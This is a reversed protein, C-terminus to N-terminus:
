RNIEENLEEMMRARCQEMTRALSDAEHATRAKLWLNTLEKMDRKYTGVIRHEMLPYSEYFAGIRDAFADPDRRRLAELGKRKENFEDYRDLLGRTQETDNKGKIREKALDRVRKRYKEAVSDRKEPSYMWGTLPANRHIKYEAYREVIEAPSMESAQAASLGIEEFYLKDMQSPPCSLLRAVLLACEKQTQADSNYDIIAATWDTLTQPNVGFAMGGLINLVDNAAALMDKDAKQAAQMIDSFMPNSRGLKYISKENAGTLMNLGDTIVDGYALGEIPAFMSQRTADEWQKRKEDDEGSLLLFPAVGGIRWLWPLIWGFMALNVTNKVYASRIERKANKRAKAWEADTWADEAEPHLTRLIQKAVYDENVEGSILRMLNRASTHAERTYSTSSNRFLMASTAYFTHDVQVPAMFPGESSQQSKNYCLEADQVARREAQSEEMGWRLYKAKRTKYVGHSGVAITWADVGINPLMGYSSAKMIKGDYENEKLRYDGSTRSLIRKRFNPMNKWAWKCAPVGMTAIDAGLYKLNIEGFFAPLSLTQKLATFPRLSIKGMTVGKAGQVMFRDFKARQPEYADTAIACCEEFRKWLKEGAGYVSNMRFVQQKLRNYSLLTGFDRNLEAFATWHCMEDVHKALIDMFNCKRMNWKAVSAVRKKIAGTQVSIRDNSQTTQGNEVERKLADKDRVFPFYNEISDMSAGFMRKHVENAEDGLQPLLEEQVWDAYERLKPDLADTIDQMAAEDIGMRRNTAQGMPMKEVAYLYLLEGQGIEYERMEAGDYYKITACPLADAYDYLDSYTYDVKRAGGNHWTRHKGFIEAAKEDMQKHVAEKMEQEKDASDIWGRMFHNQMYGEGNPNKSGMMKLMQDLTSMPELLWSVLWSNRLKMLRTDELDGRLERGQMDSNALHHIRNVREKEAERWAKAREVSELLEGGLQETLQEYAAIRDLKLQHIAARTAEEFQRFAASTMRGADKEEKAKKIEERLVKESQKSESINESYEKAIQLGAYELSARESIRSYPDSMADMASHMRSLICGPLLNGEADYTESPLNKWSNFVKLIAEGDPDLAGQVKIGRGDAQSTRMSILKGFAVETNRLHNNVMIEFVRGVQKSIDRRGVADTAQKLLAKVEANGIDDLLGNEMLVRALDKISKATTVDYERQRAMARRLHNLNGGIARMADKKAQLNDANAQMAEAKMKTITEELGMDPNRFFIKEDEGESKPYEFFKPLKADDSLSAGDTVSTLHESKLLSLVRQSVAKKTKYFTKATLNGKRDGYIELLNYTGGNTSSLFYFLNRKLGDPEVGYVIREPNCIIEGIMRIDEKNLPINNGKDKENDAFHDRYMHVLDSPNLVFSVNEKLKLGSLKELYMRGAETLRGVEVPKGKLDGSVAQNFLEEIRDAVAEKRVAEREEKMTQEAGREKGYRRAMREAERLPGEPAQERLKSEFLSGMAQYEKRGYKWPMRIKLGRLIAGMAKEMFDVVRKWFSLKDARMREYGNEEVEEQVRAGFEETADRMYEGAARRSRAEVHALAVAVPSGAYIREGPKSHGKLFKEDRSLEDKAREFMEAEIAEIERRVGESSNEYLHDMLRDREQETRCFLRIGKHWVGEHFVAKVVDRVTALNPLNITVGPRGALEEGRSYFGLAMRQRGSALRGVEEDTRNLRIPLGLRESLELAKQEKLAPDTERGTLEKEPAPDMFQTKGDGTTEQKKGLKNYEANLEKLKAVAEDLEAQKPFTGDGINMGSLQNRTAELERKYVDGSEIIRKLLNRFATGAATADDSLRVTYKIDHEGTGIQLERHSSFLGGSGEENVTVVQARQGFGQLTLNKGEDLMKLLYEGAEKPKDFTRGGYRSYGETITVTAPYIGKDDPKFGERELDTRDRENLRVLRALREERAQLETYKAKKRQYDREFGNRLARLKKVVREQKTREFIVPNGSLIAVMEAPDMNGDEDASGEDFSREGNVTGMKVQNIMKGKADLLQYKYLDLSGETAYYHVRVKDGMFDRAVLNGQRAGRGICQELASPTWPVTLMHMDTIRDQVNVGTGMNKTGGILIRVEGDRVRQFLEKRKEETKAEQIYAIESRPIGYDNVFRNVMDTYADYEKDKGPVGLECFILQVGKHESMEDYYKKVNECVAHVKGGDDEMDPFILRPSVAANASLSSARLGWPFKRPDKPHIGFYGGDKNELMNVIESNIENMSESAPVIVKRGDVAPKPLKLNMDNRVDAIEAYLHSLEPVNDFNRFRDKLAFTGTVGAELEASHIAFTSAWADFTPMGLEEMKRPRLYNFINYLEVLSNTITTGSLFVTGKDGQHMRQLHRVGTLLAVARSSGQPDGLGAVKQYSTVYPLSKFQHSEDVFLYDVGLNEFCFERDVNRDLRKELKAKLNERRKELAKIQKKTMQSSDNTGYLYEIMNDLQWLQEDIVAREAEETHPLMCYQEHSLIVCDYDNLSINAIFKKRNEKKFDNDNPALVRASPFAEKFERAIQSVTSKLAVIMPKKAIGMRRMEMIASQMVLTKGAGVIHDVIGGRNNILMWVADKQHPRLEKGMLGPVVLHSGDFHRIVTRNFRDNYTQELLDVREPDSPLWTEFRERLDAIKQNALETQEEDIHENGDKDKYKILLTKDELAAQLIEKASKKPTEWDSAGGGLEKKEINIEFSDTEPIYRVGSKQDNVYTGKEPDWRSTRSSYRAQIGFIENVFDNLISEPVWRAGLHIAIDDYPIGDPQVEELAKVNREFSKDKEATARADALKTVVDGSLYEDRTVYDDESNPKLFVFDGCQAAWDEGLAKSLYDPRLYGYEALSLAVAEQPTKKGDLKLAPKISNKTFIDSLGVFKGSKWTELAQLTYGDIDDLIFANGKDQLKGYKGVFNDYAKQLEERMSLLEKEDAGEIQGAILKKMATRVDIMAQTRELEKKSPAAKAAEFMRTVEGYESKKSTLVGVKGDQIVLNGNSVWDGDGKYAERIAQQSERITRSPNFLSGRRTGVIRKVAKEIESAIEETTLKSTLGFADRKGYQNGAQVDGILNRPNKEYYGNLRVKEKKGDLKNPATKEFHSLFAQELERYASDERTQARDQDDRWKRIFLMDTVVGTGQFTNDPLRIAGLIEGQDAIHARINQNSPTDMVASTTLMAVLGGPRTAELMKVAYYNHIRNQASRKLPTSDNKWSPDNVVIDGFPVNSTVVDFSGPAIGSKEFGGIMVNADPYLQRSLQGSLWDLEVGTIATREQIGKPLTGEYMGNGMSPDLLSGGKYGALGLFTNMARAIPTPTYYSSLSARKIADFLKKEGQPDLKKIAKALRNMPNSPYTNRLIHDLDYYKGIDVQGWGRFRSMIVRQEETAPKDGFLVETLTEIAKVNAELRESPTYSDSENGEKADYRFNRTYRVAPKKPQKSAKDGHKPRPSSGGVSSSGSGRGPVSAPEGEPLGEAGRDSGGGSGTGAGFTGGREVRAGSGRSDADGEDRGRDGVLPQLGGDADAGHAASDTGREVGAREADVAGGKDTPEIGSASLGGDTGAEDAGVAHALEGEALGQGKRDRERKVDSDSKIPEDELGGFLGGVTQEPKVKRKGKPKIEKRGTKGGDHDSGLSSESHTAPKDSPTDEKPLYKGIQEKITSILEGYTPASLWAQHDEGIIYSQEDGRKLTTMLETLRLSENGTRDFRIDIRLPEYGSRVPLNIRVYGGKEGFDSSVVNVGKPLDTLKLGLDDVLQAALDAGAEAARREVIAVPDKGKREFYGLIALQNNIKDLAKDVKESAEAVARKDKASEATAAAEGALAAAKGAIAETDAERQKDDKRRKDNREAILEKEAQEAALKAKHEAVRMEADRLVDPSPKDFNEIDFRDVDSTGTYGEGGYGPVRKAGEYWSKIFPKVKQGLRDVIGKAFDPFSIVGNDLFNFAYEVGVAYVRRKQEPSLDDPDRFYVDRSGEDDDIGLLRRLEDEQARMEDTVKFQGKPEKKVPEAHDSLKAEGKESLDTMLNEVNVRNIPAKKPKESHAAPKDAPSDKKRGDHDSRLSSESRTAMEIDERSLPQADAVAEPNDLMGALGKAAEESRMYFQGSEKDLWGRSTKKGDALPEKIYAVLAKKEEYSLDRDFKVVWVPTEGGKGKKRTYTTPTITYDFGDLNKDEIPIIASKDFVIVENPLAGIERMSASAYNIIGDHGKAKLGATFEAAEEPTYNAVGLTYYPNKLRINAPFIRGKGHGAESAYDQAVSMEPTFSVGDGNFRAPAEEGMRKHGPELQTVSTVEKNPTGHYLTLPKGDGDAVIGEKNIHTRTQDVEETLAKVSKYEAFPKIKRKSSEIWKEFDELNVETCDLRRGNEWGEEYNSLYASYADDRDNFGLMVKHEDFTDDPNYQDVVFVKRGNWGDIDSSLFVDINDGDTGKADAIFGYDNRMETEWVNGEADIGSRLSGRENEVYVDFGGIRKPTLKEIIGEVLQEAKSGSEEASYGASLYVEKLSETESRLHKIIDKKRWSNNVYQELLGGVHAEYGVVEADSLGEERHKGSVKIGLKESIEAPLDNVAILSGDIMEVKVAGSADVIVGAININTSGQAVEFARNESEIFSVPLLLSGNVSVRGGNDGHTEFKVKRVGDRTEDSSVVIEYKKGSKSKGSAIRRGLTEINDKQAETTSSDVDKEGESIREGLSSPKNGEVSASGNGDSAISGDVNGSSEAGNEQKDSLLTNDKRDFIKSERATPYQHPNTGDLLSKQEPTIKDSIHIVEDQDESLKGRGFVTNIANVELNRGANKVEAAVVVYSGNQLQLSTYLRFGKPHKRDKDAYYKTIVFPELLANPLREWLEQPLDHEADKGFHRSIVGYRITFRDGTLGLPKMFQPTEAVDFFSRNFIQTAVKKGKEYLTRIADLFTAKRAVDDRKGSDAEAGRGSDAPEEGGPEREGGGADRDGRSGGEEGAKDSVGVADSGNRGNREQYIPKYEIGLVKRIAEALSKPTKDGAEFLTDEEKGQISDYLDNFTQQMFKQTAGKYLAALRLAFNSFKESPLFPEGTVEDFASQRGWMEVANIADKLNKAGSFGADGMLESFAIVSQQIEGIMRASRESETDRFATALIARQAKAPLKGFMEELRTSGGTFISHYLIGRLDNAAEGKLNHDDDFASGYQTDNIYGREVLYKLADIGNRDILQSLSLEEDPDDLLIRAFAGIKDGMKNVVNKAKIREIGGSETDQAVYQGLRIAEEDNVDLMNVLVPREMGAVAEPTLGFQAAHDILYQKYRRAQEPHNEYMQLLAESRNNGQITEGRSNVSPAGTYATVSGTIEEPRIRSAIKGAAHRSAADTREKPQAEDLFHYPNRRGDRHSPHLQSAEILVVNGRPIADDGFKVEVGKGLAFDDIVEPRDIREAGNRRFGRERADQPTDRSWDPVRSLEIEESSPVDAAPKDIPSATETPQITKGDSSIEEAPTRTQAQRSRHVDLMGQWHALSKRAEELGKRAKEKAAKFKSRNRSFPVNDLKEQAKKVDKELEKVMSEAYQLAEAEDASDEVLGDWATEKDVAEFVPEGTEDDVPIRSLATSIEKEFSPLKGEEGTIPNRKLWIKVGERDYAGIEGSPAIRLETASFSGDENYIDLGELGEIKYIDEQAIIIHQFSAQHIFNGEKDYVDGVFKVKVVGDKDPDSIDPRIKITKGSKKNTYERLYNTTAGEAKTEQGKEVSVSSNPVSETISERNETPIEANEETKPVSEMNEAVGQAEPVDHDSRLSSEKDEEEPINETGINDEPQAATQDQAQAEPEALSEANEGFMANHEQEIADYAAQLETQPDIGAEVSEFLEPAVVRCHGSEDMVVVTRSSGAVDVGSGDDFMRVTGGVVYVDKGGKLTAPVIMGSDRHTRRSVTEEVQRRKAEVADDAADVFGRYANVANVYELAAGRMDDSLSPDSLVDMPDDYLRALCEEAEAGFADHIGVGAEYLRGWLADHEAMRDADDAMRDADEYQRGPEPRLSSEEYERGPEPEPGEILRGDRQMRNARRFNEMDEERMERSEERFTSYAKRHRDAEQSLLSGYEHLAVDEKMSREYMGKRLAADVDVGTDDKVRQRLGEPTLSGYKGYGEEMFSNVDEVIAMEAESLAEGNFHKMYINEVAQEPLNHRRGVAGKVDDMVVLGVARTAYQM